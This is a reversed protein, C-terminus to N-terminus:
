AKRAKRLSALADKLGGHLDVAREIKQAELHSKANAIQEADSTPDHLIQVYVCDDFRQGFHIGGCHPCRLNDPM